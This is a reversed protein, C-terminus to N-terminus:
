EREFKAFKLVRWFDVNKPSYECKSFHDKEFINSVRWCEGFATKSFFTVRRALNTRTNLSDQLNPALPWQKISQLNEIEV